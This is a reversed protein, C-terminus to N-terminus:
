RRLINELKKIMIPYLLYISISNSVIFILTFPLDAIFYAKFDLNYIYIYPIGLILSYLVPYFIGLFLLMKFNRNSLYVLIAFINWAIFMPISYLSFGSLLNDILVYINTFIFTEHFNLFAIFLMFLDITFQVNPIGEFIKELVLVISSMLIIQTYKNLRM